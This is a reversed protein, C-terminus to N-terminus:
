VVANIKAYVDERTNVSFLSDYDVVRVYRRPYGNSTFRMKQSEFQAGSGAGGHVFIMPNFRPERGREAAAPAVWVICALVLSLVAVISGRQM